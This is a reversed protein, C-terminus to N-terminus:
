LVDEKLHCDIGYATTRASELDENWLVNVVTQDATILATDAPLVGNYIAADPWRWSPAVRAASASSDYGILLDMGQWCFGVFGDFRAVFGHSGVDITDAAFVTLRDPPLVTTLDALYEGHPAIIQGVSVRELLRDLRRVGVGDTDTLVLADIQYVRQRTLAEHLRYVADDQHFSAVVVTQTTSAACVAVDEGVALAVCRTAPVWLNSLVIGLLLCAACGIALLKTRILRHRTLMWAVLIGVVWVMPYWGRIHWTSFPISSLWKVLIHQLQVSLGTPFALLDLVADPLFGAGCLLGTALGLWVTVTAIPVVIVNALPTILSIEGYYVMLSPLTPLTACVTVCVSSGLRELFPYWRNPRDPDAHDYLYDQWAVFMRPYGEILGLTACVSLQLGIDWVASPQMVLICVVAFGVSNFGDVERYLLRSILVLITMAGARMVSASFGTLAMFLLVFGISLCAGVRPKFWRRLAMHLAGTVITLHLGSVALLHSLGAVRYRATISDPLGDRDGFSIAGVTTAVADTFRAALGDRVSLRFRLLATEATLRSSPTVTLEDDPQLYLLVGTSQTYLYELLGMEGYTANAIFVGSVADGASLPAGRATDYYYVRTGDPLDGDVVRLTYRVSNDYREPLDCVTATVSVTQGVADQQPAIVVQEHIRYLFLATSFCFLVAWVTPRFPPRCIFLALIGGAFSIAILFWIAPDPCFPAIMLAVAMSGGIWAFPRRM